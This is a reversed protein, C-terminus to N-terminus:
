PSDLVLSSLSRCAPPGKSRVILVCAASLASASCQVSAHLANAASCLMGASAPAADDMSDDPSAGGGDSADSLESASDSEYRARKRMNMKRAAHSSLNLGAACDLKIIQRRPQMSCSSYYVTIQCHMGLNAVPAARDAELPARCKVNEPAAVCHSLM